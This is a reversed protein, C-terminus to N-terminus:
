QYISIRNITAAHVHKNSGGKPPHPAPFLGRDLLVQRVDKNRCGADCAVRIQGNVTKWVRLSLGTDHHCPCKTAYGSATKNEEGGALENAIMEINM